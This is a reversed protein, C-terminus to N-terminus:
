PYATHPLIASTRSNQRSYQRPYGPSHIELRDNFFDIQVPTDETYISYDRHIFANLTAERIVSLPYETKDCRKGTEPDIIAATKMLLALPLFASRGSNVRIISYTRRPSITIASDILRKARM